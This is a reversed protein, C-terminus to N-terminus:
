REDTTLEETPVHDFEEKLEVKLIKDRTFAVSGIKGNEVNSVDIHSRLQHPLNQVDSNSVAKIGKVGIKDTGYVEHVVLPATVVEEEELQISNILKDVNIEPVDDTM